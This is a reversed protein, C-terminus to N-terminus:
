RREGGIHKQLRRLQEALIRKKGIRFRIALEERLVEEEHARHEPGPTLITAAVKELQAVDESLTTPFASQLLSIYSYLVSLVAQPQLSLDQLPATWTASSLPTPGDSSTPAVPANSRLVPEPSGLTLFHELSRQDQPQAENPALMVHVLAILQPDLQDRTIRFPPISGSSQATLGQLQALVRKWAPVEAWPKISTEGAMEAALELVGADRKAELVDAPNEDLLFGYNLLFHENSHFGYNLTLETHPAIDRTAEVRILQQAFALQAAPSANAPPPVAARGDAGTDFSVKCNNDYSHNMMDILPLNSCHGADPRLQFARSSVCSMAWGLREPTTLEPALAGFVHVYSSLEASKSRLFAARMRLQAALPEYQLAAVQQPSWFLPISDFSNPLLHIYPAFFSSQVDSGPMAGLGGGAGRSGSQLAFEFLLRLGGKLPWLSAPVRDIMSRLESGAEVELQTLPAINAKKENVDTIAHDALPSRLPSDPSLTLGLPLRCLVDGKRIPRSASSLVWENPSTPSRKLGFLPRPDADSSFRMGHQALWRAFQLSAQKTQPHVRSSDPAMPAARSAAANSPIDNSSFTRTAHCCAPLPHARRLTASTARRVNKVGLPTRLM